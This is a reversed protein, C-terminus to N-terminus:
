ETKEEAKMMEYDIIDINWGKDLLAHRISERSYGQSLKTKIYNRLEPHTENISIKKDTKQIPPKKSLYKFVMQIIVIIFLGIVIIILLTSNVKFENNNGIVEGTISPSKLIIENQKVTMEYVKERIRGLYHVKVSITFEGPNIDATDWYSYLEKSGSAPIDESSTKYTDILAGSNDSIETIGYIGPINQNWKNIVSIDFKAITGLKFSNVKINEIDVLPEGIDFDKELLLIKGNDYEVIAQAHYTGPQVNAIWNGVIKSKVGKELSIENTNFQAVGQKNSGTIIISGRIKKLDESGVNSVTITFLVNENPRAESLYFIGEIYQDPYPVRVNLKHLIGINAVLINSSSDSSEIAIIEASHVGPDLNRPMTIYYNVVTEYKDNRLKVTENEFEIYEGLSGGAFLKVNTDKFENNLILFSKKIKQGSEYYVENRSPSIGLAHLTSILLIMVFGYIIIKKM